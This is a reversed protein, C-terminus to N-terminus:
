RIIEGDEIKFISKDMDSIAEIDVADTLTIFTQIKEFSKSLYVRREKDLESFVDDLLLVPYIGRDEKIFEVESLKLSLAISRQQGQSGYIRSNNGNIYFVIDDRHPGIQTSRYELDRKRNEKLLSLYRREVEERDELIPVNTSYKYDLSESDLTIIGHIDKCKKMLGKLYLDREIIISTGLKSIQIDFVELLNHVDKEFRSSKLLNNRQFLMKDYKKINYYYVPRLNSIGADIFNRRYSPSDKILRLDEPNFVVVNLGTNLEKYNKLENKNIRIRKAKNKSLKVEIFRSMNDVKVNIGIYGENKNFNVIERDKNTRFSRGTATMYIAELLNTKGQANKGIIINVKDNFDLSINDYNRFNILRIDKVLM